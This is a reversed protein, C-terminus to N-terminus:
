KKGATPQRPVLKMGCRPCNGPHESIVQPHMPCTYTMRDVSSADGSHEGVQSGPEPAPPAGAADARSPTAALQAGADDALSGVTLPASEPAEPSAPDLRSPRPKPESACGGAIRAVAVVTLLVALRARVRDETQM